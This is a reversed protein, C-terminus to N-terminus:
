ARKALGRLFEEIQPWQSPRWVMARVGAHRLSDIWERQETTVRGTEKKLEVFIVERGCLVLDPFGRKSKRSDTEHHWRIGLLDCYDTIRKQFDSESM